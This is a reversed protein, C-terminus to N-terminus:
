QIFRSLDVIASLDGDVGEVRIAVDVGNQQNRAVLIM